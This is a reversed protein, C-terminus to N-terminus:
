PLILKSLSSTPCIFSYFLHSPLSCTQAHNILQSESNSGRAHHDDSSGVQYESCLCSTFICLCKLFRLSEVSLRYFFYAKPERMPSAGKRSEVTCRSRFWCRTMGLPFSINGPNLMPGAVMISSEFLVQWFYDLMANCFSEVPTPAIWQSGGKWGYVQPEWHLYAAYTFCQANKYACSYSRTCFLSLM